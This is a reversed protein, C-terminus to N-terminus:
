YPTTVIMAIFIGLSIAALLMGGVGLRRGSDRRLSLVGLAVAAIVGAPLVWGTVIRLWGAPDFGPVWEYSAQGIMMVGVFALLGSVLSWLGFAKTAPAEASTDSMEGGLSLSRATLITRWELRQQALRAKEADRHGDM